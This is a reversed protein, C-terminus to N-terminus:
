RKEHKEPLMRIHIDYVRADIIKLVEAINKAREKTAFTSHAYTVLVVGLGILFFMYKVDEHKM